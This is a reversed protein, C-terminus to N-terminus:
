GASHAKGDQDDGILSNYFLRIVSQLLKKTVIDTSYLRDRDQDERHDYRGDHEGDHPGAIQRHGDGMQGVGGALQSLPVKADLHVDCGLVLELLEAFHEIM